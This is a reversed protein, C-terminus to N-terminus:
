RLVPPKQKIKLLKERDYTKVKKEAESLVKADYLGSKKMADYLMEVEVKPRPLRPYRMYFEPILGALWGFIKYRVVFEVFSTGPLSGYIVDFIPKLKDALAKAENLKGAMANKMVQIEWKAVFNSGGSLMGKSWGMMHAIFLTPEWSGAPITNVQTDKMVEHVESFSYLDADGTVKWAQINKILKAAKKYTEPMVQYLGHSLGGPPGGFVVLPLDVEEDLRKLHEIILEENFPPTYGPFFTPCHWLVGKAGLKKAEKVMEVQEWLSEAHAGCFVPVRGGAEEVAMTIIKRQEARTTKDIEAEIGGVILYGWEQIEDVLRRFFKRTEVEDIEACTEDKWVIFASLGLGEIAM